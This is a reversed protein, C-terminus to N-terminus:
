ATVRNCMPRVCVCARVRVRAWMRACVHIPADTVAYGRLEGRWHQTESNRMGTVAYSASYKKM